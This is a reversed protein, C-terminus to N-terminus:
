RGATASRDEPRSSREGPRRVRSRRLSFAVLLVLLSAALIVAALRAAREGDLLRDAATSVFCGGGGGGGGGSKGPDSTGSGATEGLAASRAGELGGGDIATVEYYYTGGEV